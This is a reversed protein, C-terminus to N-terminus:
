KERKKENIFDSIILQDQLLKEIKVQYKETLESIEKEM